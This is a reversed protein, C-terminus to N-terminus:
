QEATPWFQHLADYVWAQNGVRVIKKDDGGSGTSQAFLIGPALWVGKGQVELPAGAAQMRLKFSTEYSKQTRTAYAAHEVVSAPDKPDLEKSPRLPGTSQLTLLLAPLLVASTMMDELLM